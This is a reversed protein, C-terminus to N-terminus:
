APALRVPNPHNPHPRRPPQPRALQSCTSDQANVPPYDVCFACYDYGACPTCKGCTIDCTDMGLIVSSDPRWSCFDQGRPTLAAQPVRQQSLRSKLWEAMCCRLICSQQMAGRGHMWLLMHLGPTM